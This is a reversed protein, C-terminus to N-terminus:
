SACPKEKETVTAPTPYLAQERLTLAEEALDLLEPMEFVVLLPMIAVEESKAELEVLSDAFHRNKEPEKVTFTAMAKHYRMARLEAIRKKTM